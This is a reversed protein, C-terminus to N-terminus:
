LLDAAEAVAPVATDTSGAPMNALMAADAAAAAAVAVGADDSDGGDFGCATKAAEAVSVCPDRQLRQLCDQLIDHATSPVTLIGSSTLSSFGGASCGRAQEDQLVPANGEPSCASGTSGGMLDTSPSTSSSVTTSGTGSDQLSEAGSSGPGMACDKLVTGQSLLMNVAAAVACRVGPTPDLSLRQLDRLLQQLFIEGGGTQHEQQRLSAVAQLQRRQASASLISGAAIVFVLRDNCSDSSGFLLLEGALEHWAPTPLFKCPDMKASEMVQLSTLQQRLDDVTVQAENGGSSQDSTGRVLKSGINWLVKSHPHQQLWTLQQDMGNLAKQLGPSEM